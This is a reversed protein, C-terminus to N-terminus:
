IVYVRYEYKFDTNLSTTASLNHVVNREVALLV